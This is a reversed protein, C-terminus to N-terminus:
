LIELYFVIFNEFYNTLKKQSTVIPGLGTETERTESPGSFDTSIQRRSQLKTERGEKRRLNENERLKRRLFKPSSINDHPSIISEEFMNTHRIKM